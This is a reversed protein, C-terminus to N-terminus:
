RLEIEFPHSCIRKFRLGIPQHGRLTRSLDYWQPYLQFEVERM